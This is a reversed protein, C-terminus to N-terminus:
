RQTSCQATPATEAPTPATALAGLQPPQIPFHTLFQHKFWGLVVGSCRLLPLSGGVNDNIDTITDAMINVVLDALPDTLPDTNFYIIPKTVPKTMPNTKANTMPNTICDIIPNTMLNIKSDITFDSLPKTM